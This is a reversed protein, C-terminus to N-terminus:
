AAPKALGPIEDAQRLEFFAVAKRLRDPTLTAISALHTKREADTFNSTSLLGMANAELTPRHLAKLEKDLADMSFPLEAPLGYRNKAEWEPSKETYLKREGGMASREKKDGKQFLEYNAFLVMDAWGLIISNFAENGKLVWSNYEVGDPRKIIKTTVHSTIWVAVLHKQNIQDLRQLVGELLERGRKYGKGYGGGYLEVSKVTGERCVEAYILSELADLTDVALTRFPLAKAGISEDLFGIVEAYTAPEFQPIYEMGVLGKECAIVAPQFASCVFTTKGIGPVGAIIGRPPLILEKPALKSLFSM